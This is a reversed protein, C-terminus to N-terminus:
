DKPEDKLTVKLKTGEELGRQGFSVILDGEQLPSKLEVLEGQAYGLEVKVARAQEGQVLMVWPEDDRYM